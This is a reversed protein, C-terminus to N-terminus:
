RDDRPNHNCTHGDRHQHRQRHTGGDANRDGGDNTWRHGNARDVNGIAHHDAHNPNGGHRHGDTDLHQPALDTRDDATLNTEVDTKGDTALDTRSNVHANTDDAPISEARTRGV